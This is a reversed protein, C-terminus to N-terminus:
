WGTKKEISEIAKSVKGRGESEPAQKLALAFLRNVKVEDSLKESEVIRKIATEVKMNGVRGPLVPAAM